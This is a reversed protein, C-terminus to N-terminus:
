EDVGAVHSISLSGGSTFKAYFRIYGSTAEGRLTGDDRNRIINILNYKRKTRLIAVAKGGFKSYSIEFLGPNGVLKDINDERFFTIKPPMKRRPETPNLHSFRQKEAYKWLNDIAYQDGDAINKFNDTFYQRKHIVHKTRFDDHAFIKIKSISYKLLYQQHRLLNNHNSIEPDKLLSEVSIPEAYETQWSVVSSNTSVSVTSLYSDGSTNRSRNNNNSSQPSNFNYQSPESRTLSTSYGM